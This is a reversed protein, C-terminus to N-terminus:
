GYNCSGFKWFEGYRTLHTDIYIYIYLPQTWIVGSWELFFIIDPTIRLLIVGGM